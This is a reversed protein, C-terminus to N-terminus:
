YWLYNTLARRICCLNPLPPTSPATATSTTAPRCAHCNRAERSHHGAGAAHCRCALGRRGHSFLLLWLLLWLLLRLHRPPLILMAAATYRHPLPPPPSATRWAMLPAPHDILPDRAHNPMHCRTSGDATTTLSAATTRLHRSMVM